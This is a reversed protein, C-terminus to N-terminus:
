EVNWKNIGLPLKKKKICISIFNNRFLGIKFKKKTGVFYEKLAKGGEGGLFFFDLM